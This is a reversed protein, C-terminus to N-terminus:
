IGDIIKKLENVIPRAIEYIENFNRLRFLNKQSRFSGNILKSYQNLNYQKSGLELSLLVINNRRLKAAEIYSQTRDRFRGLTLLFLVKKECNDISSSSRQFNEYALRFVSALYVKRKRKQQVNSFAESIETHWKHEGQKFETSLFDEKKTRNKYIGSFQILGFQNKELNFYNTINTLLKLITSFQKKSLKKTGDLGFQVNLLHEKCGKKGTSDLYQKHNHEDASLEYELQSFAMCKALKRQPLVAENIKFMRNILEKNYEKINESVFEYNKWSNSNEIIKKLKVQSKAIGKQFEELLRCFTYENKTTYIRNTLKENEENFLKFSNLFSSFPLVRNTVSWKLVQRDCDRILVSKKINGIIAVSVKQLYTLKEEQTISPKYKQLLITGNGKLCLRAVNKLCLNRIIVNSECQKIDRYPYSNYYLSECNWM